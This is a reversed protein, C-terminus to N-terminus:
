PDNVMNRILTLTEPASAAAARLNDFVVEYRQVDDPYQDSNAEVYVMDPDQQDPFRLIVFPGELTGPRAESSFRIVQLLVHPM